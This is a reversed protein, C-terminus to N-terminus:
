LEVGCSAEGENGDCLEGDEPVREGDRDPSPRRRAGEDPRGGLGALTAEELFAGIRRRNEADELLMAALATEESRDLDARARAIGRLQEDLRNELFNQNLEMDRIRSGIELHLQTFAAARAADGLAQALQSAGQIMQHIARARMVQRHVATHRLMNAAAFVRKLPVDDSEEIALAPLTAAVSALAQTWKTLEAAEACDWKREELLWPV